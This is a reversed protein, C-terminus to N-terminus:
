PEPSRDSGELGPNSRGGGDLDVEETKADLVAAATAAAASGDKDSASPLSVNGPPPGTIAAKAEAEAEAEAKAKAKRSNSKAPLRHTPSLVNPAMKSRFLSAEEPNELSGKYLSHSATGGEAEAHM